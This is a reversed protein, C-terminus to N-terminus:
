QYIDRSNLSLNISCDVSQIRSEPIYSVLLLYLLLLFKGTVTNERVPDGKIEIEREIDRGKVRERKRM